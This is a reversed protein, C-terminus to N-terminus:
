PSPLLVALAEVITADVRSMVSEITAADIDTLDLAAGDYSPIPESTPAHCSAARATTAALSLIAADIREDRAVADIARTHLAIPLILGAPLNWQRLLEASVEAYDFGFLERQVHAYPLGRESATSRCAAYTEPLEHAMVLNGISHLLGVVFLREPTPLGCHVAFERAAGACYISTRWFDVLDILDGRLARLSGVATTALAMDHIQRMGLVRVAHDISDIPTMLGIYASNVLRLVRGALAPDSKVIEAIQRLDSAPNSVAERMRVYAQPLPVLDIMGAVLATASPALPTAVATSNM